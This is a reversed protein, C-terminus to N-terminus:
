NTLKLVASIYVKKYVEASELSAAHISNSKFKVIDEKTLSKIKEALNEPTFDDSVVGLNYKEVIKKMEPSPSIAIALKAQIFEFLKNPLAHTYNFNTPPLLFIGIDYQNITPIIEDFSVPAKFHVNSTNNVLDTIFNFYEAENKNVMAMIDLEYKDGLIKAVKIMEENKRSKMVGGHYIMRIKDSQNTSPKISSFSSSNPIVISKVNFEQACKNAIGDCVNVFLDIKPLYNQYLKYYYKGITNVWNPQEEFELPHYEHANYIIKINLEEKLKVLFPLYNPEHAIIIKINNEKIYNKIKPYTEHIYSTFGKYFLKRFITNEIKNLLTNFNSLPAFTTHQDIPATHGITYINFESKFTEIERIMRPGNHFTRNALILLNNKQIKM